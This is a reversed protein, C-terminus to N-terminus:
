IEEKGQKEEKMEEWVRTDHVEGVCVFLKVFRHSIGAQIRVSGCWTVDTKLSQTQPGSSDFLLPCVPYPSCTSLIHTPEDETPWIRSLSFKTHDVYLGNIPWLAPVPIRGLYWWEVGRPESRPCILYIVNLCRAMKEVSGQCRRTGVHWSTDESWVSHLGSLVKM